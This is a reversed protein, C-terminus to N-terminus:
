GDNDVSILMKIQSTKLFSFLKSVMNQHLAKVSEPYMIAVTRAIDSGWDGGQVVYKEYKLKLMVKQMVEAHQRHTFGPEDPYSSFGYGPLSPAIVHFGASTLLPLIKQVEAFSGPWGHLFLLPIADPVSSRAHVFHIDLTGFGDVDVATMFQPLANLRYEEARWDYNNRWFDITKSM